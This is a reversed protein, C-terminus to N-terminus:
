RLILETRQIWWGRNNKALKEAMADAQRRDKYVVFSSSGSGSLRFYHFSQDLMFMLYIKGIEPALKLAPGQLINRSHQLFKQNLVNPRELPPDFRGDLASFVSATSLEIRPNVLVLQRGLGEAKLPTCNGERGSGELWFVQGIGLHFALSVPVDAGLAGTNRIFEWTQAESSQPYDQRYLWALVAAADSTGGGLGAAVPINKHVVVQYHRPPLNMHSFYWSLAQTISDKGSKVAGAFEGEFSVSTTATPTLHLHDELTTFAFVSQLNHYGDPGKGTVHLMLNVKAHATLHFSQSM